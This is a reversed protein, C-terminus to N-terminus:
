VDPNSAFEEAAAKSSFAYCHEKYRLVGIEPNAPLLLRDFKVLAWGCYGQFVHVYRRFVCETSIFRIVFSPSCQLWCVRYQLPLKNFNKTTDPFLWDQKRYDDKNTDVHEKSRQMSCLCSMVVNKRKTINIFSAYLWNFAICM